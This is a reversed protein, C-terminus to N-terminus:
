TNRFYTKWNTQLNSLVTSAASAIVAPLLILNTLIVSGLQNIAQLVSGQSPPTTALPIVVEKVLLVYLFIFLLGAVSAAFM